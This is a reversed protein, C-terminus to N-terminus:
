WNMRVTYTLSVEESKGLDLSYVRTASDVKESKESEKMLRWAGQVRERLEVTVPLTKHNKV